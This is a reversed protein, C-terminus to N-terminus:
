RAGKLNLQRIEFQAALLWIKSFSFKRHPILKLCQGYVERAREMDGAELEEYLAYNIWLYIYRKWYRKELAPPVNGIAREYIERIKDKNGASEELSIYDFWSDYNLPNNRVEDEYQFRTKGVIVNEVIERELYEAFAVLLQEEEKDDALERLTVLAREYVNRRWRQRPM